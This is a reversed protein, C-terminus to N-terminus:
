MHPVKNNRQVLRMSMFRFKSHKGNNVIHKLWFDNPKVRKKSEKQIEPYHRANFKGPQEMKGNRLKLTGQSQHPDSKTVKADKKHKDTFLEELRPNLLETQSTEEQVVRAAIACNPTTAVCAPAVGSVTDLHELSPFKSTQAGGAELPTSAPYHQEPTGTASPTNVFASSYSCQEESVTSRDSVLISTNAEKLGNAKETTSNCSNTNFYSLPCVKPSCSEEEKSKCNETDIRLNYEFAKEQRPHWESEEMGHDELDLTSVDGKEHQGGTDTQCKAASNKHLSADEKKKDRNMKWMIKQRVWQKTILRPIREKMNTITNLNQQNGSKERTQPRLEKPKITKKFSGFMEPSKASKNFDTESTQKVGSPFHTEKCTAAKLRYYKDQRTIRYFRDFALSCLSYVLRLSLNWLCYILIETVAYTLVPISHFIKVAYDSIGRGGVRSDMQNSLLLHDNTVDIQSIDRATSFQARTKQAVPEVRIM